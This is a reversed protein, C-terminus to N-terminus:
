RLLVVSGRKTNTSEGELQYICLWVFVNTDQKRGGITGDWGRNLDTTEFIKQGWRNYISFSYKKVDGFLLPRFIDNKGDDNPTFATPVFLGKLCEKPRVVITDRGICDYNDKVQLWFSGPTSIVLSPTNAGTSWL